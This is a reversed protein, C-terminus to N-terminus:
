FVEAISFLMSPSLSPEKDSSSFAQPDPLHLFNTHLKELHGMLTDCLAREKEYPKLKGRNRARYHFCFIINFLIIIAFLVIQSM